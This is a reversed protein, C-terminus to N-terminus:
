ARYFIEQGDTEVIEILRENLMYSLHAYTEGYAFIRMEVSLENWPVNRTNWICNSAINGLTNNGCDILTMIDKIRQEHHLAIEECRERLGTFISGHAPMVSSVPLDTIKKLSKLYRSLNKMELNVDVIHPTIDKLVHDGSIFIGSKEDYLCTHTDCHGPTLICCFDYGGASIVDGEDVRKFGSEPIPWSIIHREFIKEESEVRHSKWTPEAASLLKRVLREQEEFSFRIFDLSSGDPACHSYALAGPAVISYAAGAHDPHQHTIFIDLRDPPVQLLELARRLVSSSIPLDFGTDVLVSREDGKVLYTNVASLANNPLPVTIRFINKCVEEIV